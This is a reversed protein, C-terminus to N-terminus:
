CARVGRGLVDEGLHLRVQGLVAVAQELQGAGEEPPELHLRRVDDGDEGLSIRSTAAQTMRSTSGKRLLGVLRATRAMARSARRCRSRGGHDSPRAPSVRAAKAPM